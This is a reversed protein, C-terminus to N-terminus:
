LDDAPKAPAGTKPSIPADFIAPVPPSAAERTSPMGFKTPNRVSPGPLQRMKLERGLSVPRMVPPCRFEAGMMLDPGSVVSNRMPTTARVAPELQDHGACGMGSTTSDVYDDTLTAPVGAQPLDRM